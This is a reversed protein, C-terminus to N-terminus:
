LNMPKSDFVFGDAGDKQIISENVKTKSIKGTRIRIRVLEEYYFTGEM